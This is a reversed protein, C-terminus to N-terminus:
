WMKANSDQGSKPLSLNTSLNFIYGDWHQLSVLMGTHVHCLRLFFMTNSVISGVPEQISMKLGVTQTYPEWVLLFGSM